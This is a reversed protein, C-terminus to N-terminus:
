EASDPLAEAGQEQHDPGSMEEKALEEELANLIVKSFSGHVGEAATARVVPLFETLIERRSLPGYVHLQDYHQALKSRSSRALVLERHLSSHIASTLLLATYADEEKRAQLLFWKYNGWFDWNFFVKVIGQRIEPSSKQYWALLEYRFKRAEYKSLETEPTSSTAIIHMVTELSRDRKRLQWRSYALLASSGLAIALLLIAFPRRACLNM